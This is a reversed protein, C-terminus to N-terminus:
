PRRSTPRRPTATTTKRSAPASPTSSAGQLRRRSRGAARGRGQDVGVKQGGQARVNGGERIVGETTYFQQDGREALRSVGKQRDLRPGRVAADRRRVGDRRAAADASRGPGQRRATRKTTPCSGAAWAGSRRRCRGTQHHGLPRHGDPARGPQRHRRQRHGLVLALQLPGPQEHYPQEPAPGLWLNFDLTRRRRSSRSSASAGARSAATARALGAAQRVQGLPGRRDDRAWSESSRSQTGHQVIRDYKQAAEVCKRGEFVNHSIPKEVYVDKGAQCAWITILSHWHNCRPSRSPTSREQRRAGQPHGQVCKPTNGGAQEVRRPQALRVAAHRSRDPLHGAVNEM